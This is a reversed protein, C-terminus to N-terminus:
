QRFSEGWIRGARNVLEAFARRHLELEEQEEKIEKALKALNTM